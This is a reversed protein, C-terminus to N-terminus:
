ALLPKVVRGAVDTLRFDRGAHRFTLREHDFGLLHLITAHFDHVHVPDEIVERGYEDTKGYVFGAKVGGGALWSSFARNHHSRGTPGDTHPTRGFETTWVVLTDDLMGRSKLDRLLAAIPQDVNKALPGHTKMDSHADWNNSSGVDILEIFRVGREAMRRAVLCQWAFGKTSGRELGYLKLTADSEKSLGLVDPMERQMGFATEFSQIRAELVPDAARTQQHKRNFRELLSLELEQVQASPSRRNLNPIPESGALVRTGQHCGPLFDSSWVQSGAYPLQPALVVFSPLNRNETGLGYSVWSGISPRAFTVSGTHIGLTAQFHDNHDGKMSRILCIDDVCERIHPFLDSVEIGSKGGSKFDWLPKLYKASKPNNPFLPKGGDATLKPKPDFSDMHSVGGTMFLFIVRKARGTFHPSKPALPNIASRHEEAMLHHLIGPLLISGSVLSRIM